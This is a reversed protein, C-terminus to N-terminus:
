VWRQRMLRLRVKIADRINVEVHWGVRGHLGALSSIEEPEVLKRVARTERTAWAIDDYSAVFAPQVNVRDILPTQLWHCAKLTESSPDM